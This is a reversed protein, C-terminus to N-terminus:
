DYMFEWFFSLRSTDIKMGIIRRSQSDPKLTSGNVHWRGRNAKDSLHNAPQIDKLQGNILIKMIIIVRSTM